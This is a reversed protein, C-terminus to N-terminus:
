WGWPIISKAQDIIGGKPSFEKSGKIGGGKPPELGAYRYVTEIQAESEVVRSCYRQRAQKIAEDPALGEVEVLLCALMTGTRGHGAM